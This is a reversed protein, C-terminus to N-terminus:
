QRSDDHRSVYSGPGGLLVPFRACSCAAHIQVVQANSSEFTGQDFQRDQPTRNEMQLKM